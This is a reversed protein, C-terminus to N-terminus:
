PQVTEVPHPRAGLRACSADARYLAMPSCQERCCARQRTPTAPAIAAPRHAPVAGPRRLRMLPRLPRSASRPRCASPTGSNRTPDPSLRHTDGLQSPPHGCPTRPGSGGSSVKHFRAADAAGLRAAIGQAGNARAALCATARSKLLPAAETRFDARHTDEPEARAVLTPRGGSDDGLRSPPHGRLARHTHEHRKTRNRSTSGATATSSPHRRLAPLDTPTGPYRERLANSFRMDALPRSM